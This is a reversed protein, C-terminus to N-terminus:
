ITPCFSTSNKWATETSAMLVPVLMDPTMKYIKKVVIGQTAFSVKYIHWSGKAPWIRMSTRHKPTNHM